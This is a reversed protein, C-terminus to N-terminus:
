PLVSKRNKEPAPQAQPKAFMALVDTDKVHPPLPPRDEESSVPPMSETEDAFVHGNMVSFSAIIVLLLVIRKM